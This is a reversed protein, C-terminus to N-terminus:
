PVGDIGARVLVSASHDLPMSHEVSIGTPLLLALGVVETQRLARYVDSGASHWDVRTCLRAGRQNEEWEVMRHNQEDDKM